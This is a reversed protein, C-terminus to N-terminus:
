EDEAEFHLSMGFFSVAFANAQWLVAQLTSGLTAGASHWFPLRDSWHVGGSGVGLSFTIMMIWLWLGITPQRFTALRSSELVEISCLELHTGLVGLPRVNIQM